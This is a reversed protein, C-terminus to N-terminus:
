RGNKRLVRSLLPTDMTALKESNENGPQSGIRTMRVQEHSNDQSPIIATV